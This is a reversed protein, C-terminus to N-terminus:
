QKADNGNEADIYQIAEFKELARHIYSRKREEDNVVLVNMKKPPNEANLKAYLDAEYKKTRMKYANDEIDKYNM